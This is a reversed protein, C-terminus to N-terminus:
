ERIARRSRSSDDLGTALEEIRRVRHYVASKSLPPDALEGLERLSADPNDLRLR